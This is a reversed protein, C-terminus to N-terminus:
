ARFIYHCPSCLSARIQFSRFHWAQICFVNCSTFLEYWKKKVFLFKLQNYL